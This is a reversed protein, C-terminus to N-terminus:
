VEWDDFNDNEFEEKECDLVFSVEDLSSPPFNVNDPNIGIENGQIFSNYSLDATQINEINQNFFSKLFNFM